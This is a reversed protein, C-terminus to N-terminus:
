TGYVKKSHELRAMCLVMANPYRISSILIKGAFIIITISSSARIDSLIWIKGLINIEYSEAFFIYKIAYAIYNLFIITWFYKRITSPFVERPIADMFIAVILHSWLHACHLGIFVVSGPSKELEIIVSCFIWCSINMMLFLVYFDKDTRTDCGICITSLSPHIM